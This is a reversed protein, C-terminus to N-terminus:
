RIFRREMIKQLQKFSKYTRKQIKYFKRDLKENPNYSFDTIWDRIDKLADLSEALCCYLDDMRNNGNCGLQDMRKCSAGDEAVKKPVRFDLFHLKGQQVYACAWLDNVPDTCFVQVDTISKM